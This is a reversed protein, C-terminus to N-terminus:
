SWMNILSRHVITGLCPTLSIEGRVFSALITLFPIIQTEEENSLHEAPPMNANSGIAFFRTNPNLVRSKVKCQASDICFFYQGVYIQFDLIHNPLLQWQEHICIM